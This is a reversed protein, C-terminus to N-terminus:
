RFYAEFDLDQDQDELLDGGTQAPSRGLDFDFFDDDESSSPGDSQQM